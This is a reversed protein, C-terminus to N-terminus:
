SRCQFANRNSSLWFWGHSQIVCFGAVAPDGDREMPERGCDDDRHPRDAAERLPLALLATKIEYMEVRRDTYRGVQQQPRADNPAELDAMRSRARALARGQKRECFDNM